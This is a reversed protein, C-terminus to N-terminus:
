VPQPTSTSPLWTDKEGKTTIQKVGITPSDCPRWITLCAHCLHSRHIDPFSEDDVHQFTCRPCHLIMPIPKTLTVPIQRDGVSIWVEKDYDEYRPMGCRDSM